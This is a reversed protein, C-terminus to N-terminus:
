ERKAKKDRSKWRKAHKGTELLSKKRAYAKGRKFKCDRVQAKEQISKGRLRYLKGWGYGAKQKDQVEKRERKSKCKGERPCKGDSPHVKGRDKLSGQAEKLKM